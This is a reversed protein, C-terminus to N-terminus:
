QFHLKNCLDNTDQQQLLTITPKLQAHNPSKGEREKSDFFDHQLNCPALNPEQYDPLIGPGMYGRSYLALSSFLLGTSHVKPIVPVIDAQKSWPCSKHTSLLQTTCSLPQMRTFSQLRARM